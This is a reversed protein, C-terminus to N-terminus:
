RELDIRGQFRRRQRGLDLLGSDSGKRRDGLEYRKLAASRWGVDRWVQFLYCLEEVEGGSDGPVSFVGAAFDIEASCGAGSRQVLDFEIQDAGVKM